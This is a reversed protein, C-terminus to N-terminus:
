RQLQEAAKNCDDVYPQADNVGLAAAKKFYSCADQGLKQRYLAIQFYAKGYGPNIRIIQQYDYVASSEEDLSECVSARHIYAKLANPNQSIAKSLSKFADNYKQAKQYIVGLTYYAFYSNSDLQIAKSLAMSASDSKGLGEYAMGMHAFYNASDPCITTAMRFNSIASAYEKVELGTIAKKYFQMGTMWCFNNTYAKRVDKATDGYGIARGIDMCAGTKDGKEKKLMGSRFYAEGYSPDIKEATEFDYLATDKEGLNLNAMGLGYYGSAWNHNVKFNKYLTSKMYLNSTDYGQQEKYYNNLQSQFSNIYTTFKDGASKYNKNNLAQMGAKLADQANASFSLVFGAVTFILLLKKMAYLINQISVTFSSFHPM